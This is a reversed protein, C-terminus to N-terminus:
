MLPETDTGHEDYPCEQSPIFSTESSLGKAGNIFGPKAPPGLTDRLVASFSQAENLKCQANWAHPAGITTNSVTSSLAPTQGNKAASAGLAYLNATFPWGSLTDSFLLLSCRATPEYFVHVKGDARKGTESHTLFLNTEQPMALAPGRKHWHNRPKCAELEQSTPKTASSNRWLEVFNEILQSVTQVPNNRCLSRLQSITEVVSNGDIRPHKDFSVGARTWLVSESFVATAYLANWNDNDLVAVSCTEAPELFVVQEAESSNSFCIQLTFICCSLFAKSGAVMSM